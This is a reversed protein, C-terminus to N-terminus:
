VMVVNSVKDGEDLQIILGALKELAARQQKMSGGRDYIASSGPLKHGLIKEAVYFPVSLDAMLCRSTRRLDHITFHELDHNLKRLAHWTTDPSVHNRKSKRRAPFVYESGCARVQLEKLWDIVM